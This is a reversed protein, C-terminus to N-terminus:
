ENYIYISTLTFDSDKIKSSINSLIWLENENIQECFVKKLEYLGGRALTLGLQSHDPRGLPSM